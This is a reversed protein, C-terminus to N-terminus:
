ESWAGPNSKGRFAGFALPVRQLVPRLELQPAAQRKFALQALVVTLGLLLLAIFALEAPSSLPVADEQGALM